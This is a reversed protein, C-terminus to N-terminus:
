LAEKVRICNFFCTGCKICKSINVKPKEDITLANAPCKAVCTGCGTCFEDNIPKDDCGLCLEKNSTLLVENVKMYADIIPKGAIIEYPKLTQSDNEIVAKVVREVEEEDPQCGIIAYDVKVVDGVRVFRQPFGNELGILMRQFGGSVACSGVAILIKANKRIEKIKNVEEEDDLNVAGGVLVIGKEKLKNYYKKEINKIIMDCSGCGTM